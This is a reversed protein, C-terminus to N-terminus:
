GTGGARDRALPDAATRAGALALVAADPACAECRVRRVTGDLGAATLVGARLRVDAVPGPFSLVGEVSWSGDLAAVTVDGSTAGVAVVRPGVDLASVPRDYPLRRVPGGTTDVVSLSDAVQSGTIALRGDPAAAIVAPFPIREGRGGVAGTRLDAPVIRVTSEGPRSVALLLRDPGGAFAVGFVGQGRPLRPVRGAPRGTRADRVRLRGGDDVAAMRAGSPDLVVEYAAGPAAVRVAPRGLPGALGGRAVVPVAVGPALRLAEVGPARRVVARGGATGAVAVTSGAALAVRRGGPDLAAARVPGAAVRRGEPLAAPDWRRATGDNHVSVLTGDPATAVARAEKSQPLGVTSGLRRDGIRLSRDPGSTVVAAGGRAAGLLPLGGYTAGIERPPRGPALSWVRGDGTGGAALVEGPRGAALYVADLSAGLARGPGAAVAGATVAWARVSGDPLAVAVTRGDGAFAV